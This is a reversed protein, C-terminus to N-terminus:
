GAWLFTLLVLKRGDNVLIAVSAKDKWTVVVRIRSGGARLSSGPSGLTKAADLIV